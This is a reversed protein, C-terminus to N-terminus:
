AANRDIKGGQSSQKEIKKSISSSEWGRVSKRKSRGVLETTVKRAGVEGGEFIDALGAGGLSVGAECKCDM